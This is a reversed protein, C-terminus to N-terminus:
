VLGLARLGGLWDFDFVYLYIQALGAFVLLAGALRSVRGTQGSLRRLLGARGVAALLTVGVMMVAMGLAYTGLVLVAGTPGSALAVLALGVFVPATCGAAAVAYVVGFAVYSGATRRREPLLVHLDPLLGVFLAGGLGVLLAGVVPELVAIDRLARAGLAAAIGALVGYVLFFGLSALLGVLAARGLKGARSSPADDGPGRGLYFAVYGPLLPFACPAFFTAMGASFAFALRGTSVPEM